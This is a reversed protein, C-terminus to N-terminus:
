PFTRGYPMDPWSADDYIEARSGYRQELTLGDFEAVSVGGLVWRHLPLFALYLTRATRPGGPFWHVGNSDFVLAGEPTVAWGTANSSRRCAYFAGVYTVLVLATAVAAARRRSRFLTAVRM